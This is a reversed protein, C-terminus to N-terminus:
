QKARKIAKKAGSTVDKKVAKAGHSITKWHKKLDTSLSLIEARSAKMGKEYEKAVSDIIHHYIPETIERATELKAIVDGKMKIAWAKAHKQHKKGKPGLFFYATAALGALTAGILTLKVASSGNKITKKM